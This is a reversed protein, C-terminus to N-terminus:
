QSMKEDLESGELKYTRKLDEMKQSIRHISESSHPGQTTKNVEMYSERLSSYLFRKVTM